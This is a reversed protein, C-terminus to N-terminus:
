NKLLHHAEVFLMIIVNLLLVNNLNVKVKSLLVPSILPLARKEEKEQCGTLITEQLESIWYHTVWCHLIFINM